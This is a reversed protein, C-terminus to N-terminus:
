TWDSGLLSDYLKHALTLKSGQPVQIASIDARHVAPHPGAQANPEAKDRQHHNALLIVAQNNASGFGSDPQDIPNAVIANLQKRHLKEKAPPIIDGTQAAFGIILQQPSKKASLQAVIDPVFSLPLPNPLDKKPLKGTATHSPRVDAVAAAMIIWNAQALHSLMATEMEAATTVALREVATPITPALENSLPGH